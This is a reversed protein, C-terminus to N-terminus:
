LWIISPLYISYLFCVLVWVFVLWGCGGDDDLYLLHIINLFYLLKKKKKEGMSSRAISNPGSLQIGYYHQKPTNKQSMVLKCTKCLKIWKVSIMSLSATVTAEETYHLFKQTNTIIIYMALLEYCLQLFPTISRFGYSLTSISVKTIARIM